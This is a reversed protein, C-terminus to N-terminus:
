GRPLSVSDDANRKPLPIGNSILHEFLKEILKEDAIGDENGRYCGRCIDIKYRKIGLGDYDHNGFNFIRNCFFCTASITHEGM